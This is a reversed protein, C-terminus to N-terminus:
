RPRRVDLQAILDAFATAIPSTSLFSLADAKHGRARLSAYVHLEFQLRLADHAKDLGFTTRLLFLLAEVTSFRAADAQARLWYRSEGTMPLNVLRGWGGVERAMASSERWAGDLLLVQVQEPPPPAPPPEGHPHLIWLDRGPVRIDAATLHRERRWLHHRSAPIVRHILNGTSSPRYGERHHMLLDIQLTCTVDRHAACVCWRLPLLCRRCRTSSQTLRRM